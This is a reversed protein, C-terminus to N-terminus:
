KAASLKLKALEELVAAASARGGHSTSTVGYKVKNDTGIIFTSPYSTERLAEWRLGWANTFKYDPDTVYHFNSPFQRSGKFEEAHETLLDAPGPYVLVLQVGQKDFEGAKTLFEGVQRSCIPCQYGPWGRLVLLVVPSKSTLKRLSIANGSPELLEFDPAEAGVAPPHPPEKGPLAQGRKGKGEQAGATMPGLALFAVALLIGWRDARTM